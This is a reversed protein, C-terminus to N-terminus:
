AIGKKSQRFHDITRSLGEELGIKQHWGTLAKLKSTDAILKSSVPAAKKADVWEVGLQSSIIDALEGASIGLGSGLTITEGSAAETQVVKILADVTDDVYLFDRITKPDWIEIVGDELGQLILTPALYDRSQSPGYTNSNRIITYPMDDIFHSINVLQECIIKSASYPDKGGLPHRDDIPLYTPEGYVMISSLLVLRGVNSASQLVNATGTVNVSFALPFDRQCTRPNAIAALHYVVAAKGLPEKISELDRIDAHCIEVEHAISGLSGSTGVSFDDLAIVHAGLELLKASLHQGLFGAAGTVCVTTDKIKM